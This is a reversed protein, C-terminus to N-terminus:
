QVTLLLGATSSGIIELSDAKFSGSVGVNATPISLIERVSTQKRFREHLDRVVVFFKLRQPFHNAQPAVKVRVGFFAPAFEARSSRDNADKLVEAKRNERSLVHNSGVGAHAHNLFAERRRPM